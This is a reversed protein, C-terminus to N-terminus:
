PKWGTTDIHTYENVCAWPIEQTRGDEHTILNTDARIEAIGGSGVEIRYEDVGFIDVEHYFQLYELDDFDQQEYVERPPGIGPCNNHAYHPYDARCEEKRVPKDKVENWIQKLREHAIEDMM